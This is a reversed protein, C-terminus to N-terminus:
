PGGPVGDQPAVWGGGLSKILAVAATARQGRSRVVARDRELAVAQATVVPLYSALGRQYRARAISELVHAAAAAAQLREYEETLLRQAALNDEVEAFATLVVDRYRAVAEDWTARAIVVNAQRQGGDFLPAVLFGGLAWLLSPASLLTAADISQVGAVAGLRLSPYFAAEAVGIGANASAMRREAAGIDPRRELLESPLVAPLKPPEPPPPGALLHFLPAPQGTLAALAHEFRARALANSPLLAEAARLLTEAQAVDLDSVIGAARRAQVLELAQRYGELSTLLLRREEDLARLTFYDAAVEATLALRVSELDGAEAASRADASEAQRRVRGWLDPEWGLDFPISFNGYTFSKGAAEGTTALPREESDHQLTATAAVGIRPFLGARAVDVSARAQAFRAEAVRLRQSGELALRELRDLEADEFVRWWDGRPLHDRPVATKWHGPAEQFAEPLRAAAEPRVYDPGVACGALLLPGLFAAAWRLGNM